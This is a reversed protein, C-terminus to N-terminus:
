QPKHKDTQKNTKLFEGDCIFIEFKRENAKINFFFTYRMTFIYPWFGFHIWLMVKFILFERQNIM